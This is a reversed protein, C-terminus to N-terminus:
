AGVAEVAAKMQNYLEWVKEADAKSALRVSVFIPYGNIGTPSAKDLYEYIMGIDKVYSKSCNALGGLAIVMFVSPIIDRQNSPIHRDTFVKNQFIDTALQKIEEPKMSHLKTLKEKKLKDRMEDVGPVHPKDHAHRGKFSCKLNMRGCKTCKCGKTWDKRDVSDCIGDCSNRKTKPKKKAM